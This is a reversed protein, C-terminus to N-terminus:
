KLAEPVIGAVNVYAVNVSVRLVPAQAIVVSKV